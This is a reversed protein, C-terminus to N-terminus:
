KSLYSTPEADFYEGEVDNYSFMGIWNDKQEAFTFNHNPNLAMEKGISNKLYLCIIINSFDKYRNM